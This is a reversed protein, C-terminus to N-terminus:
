SSTRRSARSTASRRSTGQLVADLREHPFATPFLRRSFGLTCVFVHAAVYDEGIWVHRQGFDVQAQQGPATEFRVTAASYAPSRASGGRGAGKLMLTEPGAPTVPSPLDVQQAEEM